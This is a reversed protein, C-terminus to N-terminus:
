SGRIELVIKGFHESAAMRRHADGAETWPVISDIVPRIRGSALDEGFRALFDAIIDAKEGPGRGRLTSGIVSARKRVLIRLDLEATGGGITAIAVMRGNIALAAINRELYSGGVHDLIVDVGRGGTFAGVEEVFDQVQYNVALDAGIEVCRRCKEESGATVAIRGGRLKVLAVAATGVGGGGGHVLVSEGDRYCALRFVTLFVTLFVESIAAAEVLSLGEPVPLAHRADVVTQEAYGGGGLLAMVRDGVRFATVGEGVEAVAGACELGLIESAGPPPPYRGERQLLDARNVATAAVAIRLEGRGPSPAPVEGIHMVSEDGPHDIVIARM